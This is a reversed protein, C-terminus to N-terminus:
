GLREYHKKASIDYHSRSKM